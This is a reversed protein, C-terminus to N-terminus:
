QEGEAHVHTIVTSDVTVFPYIKVLTKLGIGKVNILSDIHTFPRGQIIRGSKVKGIGKLTTLEVRTATNVNIITDGANAINCVFVLFALFFLVSLTYRRLLTMLNM